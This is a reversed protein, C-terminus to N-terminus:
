PRVGIEMEIEIIKGNRLVEFTVIDGPSTNTFLYNILDGYQMVPYDNIKLIVDDVKLGALDAPSGPVIDSLLAGVARDLNLREAEELPVSSWSSIGMYPAQFEGNAILSPVVRKVVNISVAFGIGSNLPEANVNTNFTQIARNVGIVEGKMNLLPGGSNGPNIAADTQIIGGASFPQGSPAANISELTRALSSVIGTTMTGNLGFPNGIAVVMQGVQVQDSDGLSLPFLEDESIDVKIVALDSNTDIGIVEARTKIGGHFTVKIEKADEVVHYNTVINGEKDIVFGSGSGEGYDTTVLIAVVGPSVKNYIEILADQQSLLESDSLPNEVSSSLTPEPKLITIPKQTVTESATPKAEPMSIDVQPLEFSTICAIATLSLALIIFIYSHQKNMKKM